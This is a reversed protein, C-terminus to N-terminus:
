GRSLAARVARSAESRGVSVGSLKAVLDQAATAAVGEIESLASTTAAALRREAEATTAAIGRDAEAVRAETAQAAAANAENALKLAEARSADTRVRYAEEIADANRRADEAAALDEAIRQDRADVTSMVKPLMGRGVVLYILGFTLLLWFLQSAYTSAIQDLQPM